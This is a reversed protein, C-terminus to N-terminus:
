KQKLYKWYAIPHHWSSFVSFLFGHIGDIFGQNRVFLTIFTSLPLFFLYMVASSFSKAVQKIRLEEATLSTYHDAKRWYDNITEYSYHLLANRLYGVKGNIQIQEHVSKCPFHGTSKQFLRIVYDPYVGTKKMYYGWFNNKRPLYYGAIENNQQIVTRIEKALEPTVVEDADLQLIWDKTAADVAKQKNIHFLPPNDTQIIDTTFAQAIEVTRDSSGGDVIVIEDALDRVSVLCQQLYREENYVALVVSIQYKM